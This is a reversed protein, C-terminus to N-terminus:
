GEGHKAELEALERDLADDNAHQFGGGAVIASPDAPVCRVSGDPSVIVIPHYGTAKRIAKCAREIDTQRVGPRRSM